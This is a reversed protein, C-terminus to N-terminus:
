YSSEYVMSEEKRMARGICFYDFGFAEMQEPLYQNRGDFFAKGQMEQIIHSFDLTRFQKWETMLVIADSGKAAGFEDSCWEIQPNKKLVKKANAIAVPDFLRLYAGGKLLEHILLLAPAERIDDTGPKFSLGWIGIVKGSVGGKSQFYERIKGGMVGKQRENVKEIADLLPTEHGYKRSTARLAAIDKPFCSGGYGVGAYLFASGIRRDSGMGRRVMGIDANSKECLGSLENMFSIRSALMANSAYKTMEASPIDMVLLRDSSITFPAYLKRMYSEALESEVGVVIRDPKMFDNIADGEKLFEPNSVVDFSAELAREGLAHTLFEKVMKGSGVPVTSKNVIIKYGEMSCAITTLAKKIYSLDSNGDEGQPTPLALFCILAKKVSYDYDTTFELREAQLNRKLMEDLGPEYIPSIGEKLMEIKSQDIDLCIVRHGMEAFCVGTVLGVYGTGVVLIQM